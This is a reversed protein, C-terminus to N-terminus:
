AAVATHQRNGIEVGIHVIHATKFQASGGDEAGRFAVRQGGDGDALFAVDDDTGKGMTKEDLGGVQEGLIGLHADVEFFVGYVMRSCIELVVVLGFVEENGAGFLTHATGREEVGIVFQVYIHFGHLPVGVVLADFEAGDHSLGSLM